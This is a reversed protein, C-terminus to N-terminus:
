LSRVWSILEVFGIVLATVVAAAILAVMVILIWRIVAGLRHWWRRTWCGSPAPEFRASLRSLPSTLFPGWINEICDDFDRKSFCGSHGWSSHHHYVPSGENMGRYGSPGSRPVFFPASRVVWDKSATHCLVAEVRGDDILSRWDFDPPVISGTLILRGLRIERGRDSILAQAILWTGFSHAILDPRPGYESEMERIRDCLMRVLKDQYHRQRWTIFPSIMIRGYKYVFTPIAYGYIRSLRWAYGEQWPGYTNMGHVTIIWVQDRTQLGLVAFTTEESWSEDVPLGCEPCADLYSDKEQEAGCPCRMTTVARVQELATMQRLFREAEAASTGAQRALEVPTISFSEDGEAMERFVAVVGSGFEAELSEWDPPGSPPM